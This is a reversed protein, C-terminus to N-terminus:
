RTPAITVDQAFPPGTKAIEIGDIVLRAGDRDILHFTFGGDVPIDIFGDWEAAYRTYGQASAQFGADEGSFVANEKALDPLVMWTGPYIKFAVGPSRAAAVEIADHWKAVAVVGQAAWDQHGIKNEVHLMVRFRGAGNSGDLDTGDADNFRHLVHRGHAETGDGFLWIYKAGPVAKATFNVRQGLEVFPPDVTFQAVTSQVAAFRAAQAGARLALPLDANGAERVQGYKVNDFTVDDVDGAISSAALPPQDLAWINRFKFGRLAPNGQEMQVLSYWHDLTINEFTFGSHRGKADKAGWLGLLGFTQGCAGMGAHLVDSDRLTFNQSSFIKQPWAARV